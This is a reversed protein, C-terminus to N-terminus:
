SQPVTMDAIVARHDTGAVHAIRVRDVGIRRDVLVHDITIGLRHDAPWTPELGQGTRDAADAYGRDRVARFASHDLTANFDGAIIRLVDPRAAPLGKLTRLWLATSTLSPNHVHVVRIVVDGAGALVVHAEVEISHSPGQVPTVQRLPLRSYIGTDFRQPDTFPLLKMLGARSLGGKAAQTSEEVAVVDIKESRVLAVIDAPSANGRHLNVTLIRLERGRPHPGGAIARPAVLFGFTGVALVAVLAAPWRRLLAAIVVAGVSAVAVYPTFSLLTALLFNHDVGLLRLLAFVASASAGAWAIVTGPRGLPRTPGGALQM